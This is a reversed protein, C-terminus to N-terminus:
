RRYVVGRFLAITEEKENLVTVSYVGTSKTLNEESAIATLKEGPVSPAMYNISVQLAVATGRSNSALGFATDALSFLAGGHTINHFNTLNQTVEMEVRCYGPSLEGIEIGLSLPYTDERYYKDKLEECYQQANNQHESV